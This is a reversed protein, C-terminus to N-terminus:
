RECIDMALTTAQQQIRPAMPLLCLQEFLRYALKVEVMLQEHFMPLKSLLKHLHLLVAELIQLAEAPSQNKLLLQARKLLTTSVARVSKLNNRNLKIQGYKDIPALDNLLQYYDPKKTLYLYNSLIEARLLSHSMAYSTIFAKFEVPKVKRIVEELVQLKAKKNTKRDKKLFERLLLLSAVAHKCKYSRKFVTCHCKARATGDDKLTIEVHFDPQRSICHFKGPDSSQIDYERLERMLDHAENILAKQLQNEIDFLLVKM